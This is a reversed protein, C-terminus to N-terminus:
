KFILSYKKNLYWAIVIIALLLLLWCNLFTEKHVNKVSKSGEIKANLNDSNEKEELEKVEIKSSSKINEFVNGTFFNFSASLM